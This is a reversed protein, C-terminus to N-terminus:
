RTRAKRWRQPSIELLSVCTSDQPRTSESGPEVGPAEVLKEWHIRAKPGATGAAEM